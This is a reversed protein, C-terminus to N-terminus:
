SWHFSIGVPYVKAKHMGNWIRWYGDVGDCIIHCAKLLRFIDMMDMM